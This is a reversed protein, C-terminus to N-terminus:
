AALVTTAEIKLNTDKSSDMISPADEFVPLDGLFDAVALSDIRLLTLASPLCWSDLFTASSNSTLMFSSTITCM